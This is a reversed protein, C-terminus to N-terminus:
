LRTELPINIDFYNSELRRLLMPLVRAVNTGGELNLYTARTRGSLRNLVTESFATGTVSNAPTFSYSESWCVWGEDEMIGRQDKPVCAITTRAHALGNLLRNGEALIARTAEPDAGQAWIGLSHGSGLIRRVLTRNQAMVEPTLLFLAFNDTNELTDLISSLGQGDSNRIALYTPVRSSDELDGSPVSPTSTSESPPNLSQNYERLRRNIFDSAADIFRADSLVVQENKIRVLYGQSVTPIPTYSYELGFFECVKALSLYPINNRLIGKASYPEQTMENWCEGTNLDFSLMRKLNFLAFTGRARNYSCNLDLDNNGNTATDFVTYPVYLVGGSWIPMTDATLPALHDNISTFYLEAASTPPVFLGLMLVVALLCASLRRLRSM